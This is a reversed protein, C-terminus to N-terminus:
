NRKATYTIHGREKLLFLQYVSPLEWIEKNLLTISTGFHDLIKILQREHLFNVELGPRIERTFSLDLNLFNILKLGYFVFFSTITSLLYSDYYVEEVILIGNSSLRDLLTNLMKKVLELSEGRTKGILHHLVSDIHIIDFKRSEKLSLQFADAQFLDVDYNVLNASAKLLMNLSLDTALYDAEIGQEIMAKIFGGDGCGVDLFALRRGDPLVKKIEKAISLYFDPRDVYRHYHSEFFSKVGKSM